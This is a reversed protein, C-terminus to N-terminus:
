KRVVPIVFECVVYSYFPYIPRRTTNDSLVVVMGGAGCEGNTNGVDPGSSTLEFPIAGASASACRMRMAYLSVSVSASVSM